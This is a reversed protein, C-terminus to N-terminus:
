GPVLLFAQVSLVFGQLYLFEGVGARQAMLSNNGIRKEPNESRSVRGSVSDM